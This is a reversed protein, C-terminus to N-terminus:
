KDLSYRTLWVPGAENRLQQLPGSADFDLGPYSGRVWADKLHKKWQKGKVQSYHVLAAKQEANPEYKMKNEKTQQESREDLL